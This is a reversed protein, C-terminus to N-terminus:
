IEEKKLSDSIVGIASLASMIICIYRDYYSVVGIDIVLLMILVCVTLNTLTSYTNIKSLHPLSLFMRVFPFYYSILGILGTNLLLEVYNNHCYLRFIHYSYCLGYGLIPKRSWYNLGEKILYMRTDDSKTNDLVGANGTLQAISVEMRTKISIFIPVNYIVYVIGAIAFVFLLTSVIKFQLSKNKAVQIWFVIAVVLLLLLSKRSGTLFIVTLSPIIGALYILKAFIGSKEFLIMYLSFVVSFALRQAVLNLNGFDQGLREAESVKDMIGWVNDGYKMFFCFSLIWGTIIFGKLIVNIDQKDEVLNITIFCIIVVTFYRYYYMNAIASNEVPAYFLSITIVVFYLVLGLFYYNEFLVVKKKYLINIGGIGLFMYLSITNLFGYGELFEFASSLIIYLAMMFMAVSHISWKGPKSDNQMNDYRLQNM